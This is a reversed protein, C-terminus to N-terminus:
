ETRGGEPPKAGRIRARIWEVGGLAQLKAHMAVTLRLMVVASLRDEPDKPPRGGQPKKAQMHNDYDSVLRGALTNEPRNRRFRPVMGLRAPRNIRLRSALTGLRDYLANENLGPAHPM